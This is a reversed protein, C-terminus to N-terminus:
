STGTAAITAAAELPGPAEPPWAPTLPLELGERAAWCDALRRAGSLSRAHQRARQEIALVGADDRTPDHHTLVLQGAGAAAALEVAHRWTGHGWGVKRPYEEPLYQADVTLVDADAAFAVVEADLGSAPPEYDCLHVLARGAHELRYGLVGGPHRLPLTSVVVEGVAFSTRSPITQCRWDAAFAETGVPFTPGSMQRCLAEDLGAPGFLALASDPHFFPAFFPLGQIHDWHLHTFLMTAALPRGGRAEGLQRLGSGGDIIIRQGGLRVEVCSTNGGVGATRPGPSPISGRVGWFRVTAPESGSDSVVRVESGQKTAM